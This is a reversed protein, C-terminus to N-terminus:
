SATGAIREVIQIRSNESLSRHSYVVVRRGATLGQRIQIRGDLDAAGTEVVVFQLSGNEVAWVGLRGKFRQVSATPVTPRPPLAPLNVTVEALEGIPPLPDPLASFVVKASTEETVSDALPEIRLVRGSVSADPRSRTVIRAPLGADLGATQLQDFRVDIWLSAPDIIEVVTQGAVVTTGPDVARRVVLGNVPSILELNERQRILAEREAHYKALEHRGAALDRSMGQM